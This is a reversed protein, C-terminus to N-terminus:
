DQPMNKCRCHSEKGQKVHRSKQSVSIWFDSMKKKQEEEKRRNHSRKSEGKKKRLKKKKKVDKERCGTRQALDGNDRAVGFYCDELKEDMSGM